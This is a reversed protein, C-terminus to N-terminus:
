RAGLDIKKKSEKREVMLKHMKGVFRTPTPAPLLMMFASM